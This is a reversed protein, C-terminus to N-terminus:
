AHKGTQTKAHKVEKKRISAVNFDGFKIVRGNPRVFQIDGGIARTARMLTAFQPRRTKGDFWAYLCSPTPGNAEHIERYSKSSQQVMTRIVDIAPDKDLFNYSKQITLVGNNKRSKM